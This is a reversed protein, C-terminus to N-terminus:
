PNGPLPLDLWKFLPVYLMGGGLGLMSFVTAVAFVLMYLLSSLVPAGVTQMGVKWFRMVERRYLTRFGAWNVGHYDRPQPPIVAAAPSIDTM